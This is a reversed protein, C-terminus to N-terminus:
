LYFFLSSCHFLWSNIIWITHNIIGDLVQSLTIVQEKRWAHQVRRAVPLANPISGVHVRCCEFWYLILLYWISVYLLSLLYLIIIRVSSNIINPFQYYRIALYWLLYLKDRACRIYLILEWNLRLWLNSETYTQKINQTNKIEIDM